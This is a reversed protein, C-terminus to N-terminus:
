PLVGALVHGCQACLVALLGPLQRVAPRVPRASQRPLRRDDAEHRTVPSNWATRPKPAPDCNRVRQATWAWECQPNANPLDGGASRQEAIESDALQTRM